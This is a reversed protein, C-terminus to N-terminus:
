PLFPTNRWESQVCYGGCYNMEHALLFLAVILHTPKSSYLTKTEGDIEVDTACILRLATLDGIVREIQENGIGCKDALLDKEFVYNATNRYLFLVARMTDPSSLAEFIRRMEEGDGIVETLTNGSTPVVTFFPARGNSVHTFGYDKLVYSSMSKTKLEEPDYPEDPYGSWGCLAKETQWCIERVTYFKEDNPASAIMRMIAPSLEKMSVAHNGFLTDLSVDLAQALPVLLAGDPYTESTEWKSVAQASLGLLSALQEQTYGKDLRYKKINESLTM